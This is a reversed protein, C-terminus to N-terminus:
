SVPNKAKVNKQSMYESNRKFSFRNGCRGHIAFYALLDDPFLPAMVLYAYLAIVNHLMLIVTFFMLGITFVARTKNYIRAYIVLLTLLVSVNLVSVATSINM